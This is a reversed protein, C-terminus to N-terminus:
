CCAISYSTTSQNDRLNKSSMSNSLSRHRDAFVSLMPWNHTENKGCRYHGWNRVLAGRENGLSISKKLYKERSKEYLVPTADIRAPKSLFSLLPQCFSTVSKKM